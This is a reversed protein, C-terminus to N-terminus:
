EEKYWDKIATTLDDDAVNDHIPDYSVESRVAALVFWKELEEEIDEALEEMPDGSIVPQSVEKTVMIENKTPNNVWDCKTFLRM